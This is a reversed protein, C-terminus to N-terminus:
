WENRKKEKLLMWMEYKSIHPPMTSCKTLAFVKNIVVDCFVKMIGDRFHITLNKQFTLSAQLCRIKSSFYQFWVTWVRRNCRLKYRTQPERQRGDGCCLALAACSSEYINLPPSGNAVFTLNLRDPTQFEMGGACSARANSGTFFYQLLRINLLELWVSVHPDTPLTLAMIKSCKFKVM